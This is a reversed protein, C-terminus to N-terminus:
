CRAQCLRARRRRQKQTHPGVSRYRYLREQPRPFVHSAVSALNRLAVSAAAARNRSTRDEPRALNCLAASVAAFVPRSTASSAASLSSLDAQASVLARFRARTASDFSAALAGSAPSSASSLFCNAAMFTNGRAKPQGRIRTCQISLVARLGHV